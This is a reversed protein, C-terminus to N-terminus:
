PKLNDQSKRFDGHDHNNKKFFDTPYRKINESMVSSYGRPEETGWWHLEVSIQRSHKGNITPLELLDSRNDEPWFVSNAEDRM